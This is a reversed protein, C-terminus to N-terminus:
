NKSKFAPESFTLWMKSQIIKGVRSADKAVSYFGEMGLSIAAMMWAVHVWWQWADSPCEAERCTGWMYQGHRTYPSVSIMCPRISWPQWVTSIFSEYAIWRPSWQQGRGVDSVTSSAIFFFLSFTMKSICSYTFSLNKSREFTQVAWVTCVITVWPSQVGTINPNGKKNCLSIMTCVFSHVAIAFSNPNSQGFGGLTCWQFSDM